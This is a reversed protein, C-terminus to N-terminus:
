IVPFDFYQFVFLVFKFIIYLVMPIIFKFRWDVPVEAPFGRRFSILALDMIKRLKGRKKMQYQKLKGTMVSGEQIDYEALTRSDINLEKDGIAIIWHQRNIKEKHELITKLFGVTYNQFVTLPLVRSETKLSIKFPDASELYIITGPILKNWNYDLIDEAGNLKLQQKEEQVDFKLKIEEKLNKITGKKKLIIRAKKERYKVLIHKESGLESMMYYVIANEKLGYDFLCYGEELTKCNSVLRLNDVLIGSENSIIQKFESITCSQHIKVRKYPSEPCEIDIKPESIIINIKPVLDITKNFEVNYDEVLKSNEELWKGNYYFRHDPSPEGNEAELAKNLDSVTFSSDINVPIKKQSPIKVFVKYEPTLELQLTSDPHIQYFSLAERNSLQRGNFSLIQYLSNIKEKHDIQSKLEAVTQDVDVKLCLSRDGGPLVVNISMELGFKLSSPWTIGDTRQIKMKPDVTLDTFVKKYNPNDGYAELRQILKQIVQEQDDVGSFIDLAINVNVRM